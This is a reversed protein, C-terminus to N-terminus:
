LPVESMLFQGGGQSWWLARPRTRSYPGLPLGNRILSTGRYLASVQWSANGPEQSGEVKFGLDEVMFWLDSVM